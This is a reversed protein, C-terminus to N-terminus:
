HSDGVMQKAAMIKIVEADRKKREFIKPTGASLSLYLRFREVMFVRLAAPM